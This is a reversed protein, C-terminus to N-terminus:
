RARIQRRYLENATAVDGAAVAEDIETQLEATDQDSM